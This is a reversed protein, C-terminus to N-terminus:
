QVLCELAALLGHELFASPRDSEKAKGGGARKGGRESELGRSESMQIGQKDKFSLCVVSLKQRLMAATNLLLLSAVLVCAHWATTCAHTLQEFRSYNNTFVTFTAPEHQTEAKFYNKKM